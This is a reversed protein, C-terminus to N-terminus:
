EDVDAGRSHRGHGVIWEDWLINVRSELVNDISQIEISNYRMFKVIDKTFNVVTLACGAM